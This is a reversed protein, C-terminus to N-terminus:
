GAHFARKVHEAVVWTEFLAGRQAHISLTAADRIGMLRAALGTDLFYLKPTKM